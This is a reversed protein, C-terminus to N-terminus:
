AGYATEPVTEEPDDASGRSGISGAPVDGVASVYMPDTETQLTPSVGEGIPVIHTTFTM